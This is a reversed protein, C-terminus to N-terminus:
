RDEMIAKWARECRASVTAWQMDTFRQGAAMEAVDRVSQPILTSTMFLIMEVAPADEPHARLYAAARRERRKRALWAFMVADNSHSAARDRDLAAPSGERGRVEM